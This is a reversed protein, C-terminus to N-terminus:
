PAAGLRRAPGVAGLRLFADGAVRAARPGRRVVDALVGTLPGGTAPGYAAPHEIPRGTLCAAEFLLELSEVHAGHTHAVDAGVRLIAAADTRLGRAAALASEALVRYGRLYGGAEPLDAARRLRDAASGFRGARANCAAAFESAIRWEVSHGTDALLDAARDGYDAARPDDGRWRAVEAHMQLHWARMRLDAPGIMELVDVLAADADDLRGLQVLPRIRMM